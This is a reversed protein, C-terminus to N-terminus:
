SPSASNQIPVQIPKISFKLRRNSGNWFGLGLERERGPLPSPHPHKIVDWGAVEGKKSTKMSAPDVVVVGDKTIVLEPTDKAVL